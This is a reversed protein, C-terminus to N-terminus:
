VRVGMYVCAYRRTREREREHLYVCASLFGSVTERERERKKDTEREYFLESM